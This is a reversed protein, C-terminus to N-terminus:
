RPAGSTPAGTAASGATVAAAAADLRQLEAQHARLYEANKRTTPTPPAADPNTMFRRASALAISGVFYDPVSLNASEIANRVAPQSLLLRVGADLGGAGADRANQELFARAQPDRARLAALNENAKVLKPFNTDTLEYENAAAVARADTRTVEAAGAAQPTASVQTASTDTSAANQSAENRDGPSCAGLMVAIAAALAHRPSLAPGANIM